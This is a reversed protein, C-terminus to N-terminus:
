AFDGDVQHTLVAGSFGADTAFAFFRCAVVVVHELKELGIEHTLGSSTRVM